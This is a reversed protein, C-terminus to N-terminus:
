CSSKVLLIGDCHRYGVGVLNGGRGEGAEKSEKEPKKWEHM